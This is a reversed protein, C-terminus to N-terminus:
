NLHPVPKHMQSIGNTVLPRDIPHGPDLPTPIADHTIHACFLRGPLMGLKAHATSVQQNNMTLTFRSATVPAGAAAPVGNITLIAHITSVVPTLAKYVM